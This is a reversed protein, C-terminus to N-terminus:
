LVRSVFDEADKEVQAKLADLEEQSLLKLGLKSARKSFAGVPRGLAVSLTELSVTSNLATAGKYSVVRLIEDQEPLWTRYANPHQYGYPTRKTM